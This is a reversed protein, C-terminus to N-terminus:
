VIAGAILWEMFADLTRAVAVVSMFFARRSVDRRRFSQSPRCLRNL